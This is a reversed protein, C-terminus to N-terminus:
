NNLIANCNDMKHRNEIELVFYKNNLKQKNVKHRVPIKNGAARKVLELIRTLEWFLISDKNELKDRSAGRAHSLGKCPFGGIVLIVKAKM